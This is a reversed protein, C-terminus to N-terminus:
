SRPVSIVQLRRREQVLQRLEDHVEARSYRFEDTLTRRLWSISRGRLGLGELARIWFDAKTLLAPLGNRLENGSVELEKETPGTEALAAVTGRAIRAAETARDRATTFSVELWGARFTTELSYVLRHRERLEDKLRRTLIREIMQLPGNVNVEDAQWAVRVHASDGPGPREVTREQPGGPESRPDVTAATRRPLSGLYRSALAIMRERPLDGVVSVELPAGALQHELWGQADGATLRALAALQPSRAAQDGAWHLPRGDEVWAGAALTDRTQNKWQALWAEDVRPRALILHVLHLGDEIRDAPGSIRLVARDAAIQGNLSLRRETLFTTIAAEPVARTAPRALAAAAARATEPNAVQSGAVPRLDVSVTVTVQNRSQDMPRGYIRVGNSLSASFLGLAPENEESLVSAPQGQLEPLRTVPDSAAGAAASPVTSVSGTGAVMELLQQGSPLELQPVAPATLLAAVRELSFRRRFRAQVEEGRVSDALAALLRRRHRDDQPTGGADAVSALRLAIALSPTGGPPDARSRDLQRHARRAPRLEGKDFGQGLARRVEGLLQAVIRPWQEAPGSLSAKVANSVGPVDYGTVSASRFVAPERKVLEQLREHLLLMAISELLEDRLEGVTRAHRIPAQYRLEFIVQSATPSTVAEARTPAEVPIPRALAPKPGESRWAGFQMEIQKSLEAPSFDGVAILLANDPRYWKRYFQWVEERRLVRCASESRATPSSEEAGFRAPFDLRMKLNHLRTLEPQERDEARVIDCENRIDTAEFSARSAVEALLHLGRERQASQGPVTLFYSTSTGTTTANLDAGSTLGLEEFFRRMAQPSLQQTRAFAVHEALHAFGREQPAEFYTGVGVRLRLSVKGAPNGNPRLWYRLGNALRGTVVEPDPPLARSPDSAEEAGRRCGASLALALALGM